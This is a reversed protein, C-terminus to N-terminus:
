FCVGCDVVRTLESLFEFPAHRDGDAMCWVSLWASQLLYPVKGCSSCTKNEGSISAGCSPCANHGAM